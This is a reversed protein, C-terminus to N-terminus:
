GDSRKPNRSRYASTGVARVAEKLRAPTVQFKSSCQRLECDKNVDIRARDAGGTKTEDGAM